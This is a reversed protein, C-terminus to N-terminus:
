RYNTDILVPTETADYDYLDHQGQVRIRSLEFPIKLKRRVVQIVVVRCLSGDQEVRVIPPLRSLQKDLGSAIPKEVNQVANTSFKEGGKWEHLFEIPRLANIRLTTRNSGADLGGCLARAGTGSEDPGCVPIRRRVIGRSM